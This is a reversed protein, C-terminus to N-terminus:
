QDRTCIFNSGLSFFPFTIAAGAVGAGPEGYQPSPVTFLGYYNRAALSSSSKLKLKPSYKNIYSNIYKNTYTFVHLPHGLAFSSIPKAVNVVVIIIYMNFTHTIFEIIIVKINIIIINNNNNITKNNNNNNNNNKLNKIIIRGNNNIIIM